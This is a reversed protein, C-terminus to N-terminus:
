ASVESAASKRRTTTGAVLQGIRTKSVGLHTAVRSPRAGHKNILERVADGRVQLAMDALMRLNKALEDALRCRHWPDTVQLLATKDLALPVLPTGAERRSSAPPVSLM